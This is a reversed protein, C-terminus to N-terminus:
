TVFNGANQPVRHYTKTNLIDCLKKKIRLTLQMLETDEWSMENFEM